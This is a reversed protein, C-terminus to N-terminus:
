LASRLAAQLAEAEYHKVVRDLLADVDAWTRDPSDNWNAIEVTGSRALLPRILRAAPEEFSGWDIDAWKGDPSDVDAGAIKLAAIAGAGLLCFCTQGNKTGRYQGQFWHAEDPLEARIARALELKQVPSMQEFYPITAM